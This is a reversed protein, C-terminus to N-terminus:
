DLTIDPYETYFIHGGCRVVEMMADNWHPDVDKTHFYLINEFVPENSSTLVSHAVNYAYDRAKINHMALDARAKYSFQYPQEVVGQITDPFKDSLMRNKVVGAVYYQCAKPEGRSEFYIAEQLASAESAFAASLILAKIM